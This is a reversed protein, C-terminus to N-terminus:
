SGDTFIIVNDCTWDPPVEDFTSLVPEDFRVLEGPPIVDANLSWTSSVRVTGDEDLCAVIITPSEIEQDHPNSLVGAVQDGLIRWDDIHPELSGFRDREEALNFSVLTEVTADDPFPIGDFHLSGIAIGNPEVWGPDLSPTNGVAVLERDPGTFVVGDLRINEVAHGTNNHVIVPLFRGDYAGMAAVAVEGEPAPTLLHYANGASSLMSWDGDAVPSAAPSADPAQAFAGAGGAFVLLLALSAEIFRRM